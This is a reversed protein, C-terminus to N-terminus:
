CQPGDGPPFPSNPSTPPAPYGPQEPPAGPDPPAPPPPGPPDSFPPDPNNPDNPNGPNSPDAPDNDSPPSDPSDPDDPEDCQSGVCPVPIICVIDEEPLSTMAVSGGNGGGSSQGGGGTSSNYITQQVPTSASTTGSTTCNNYSVNFSSNRTVSTANDTNPCITSQWMSTVAGGGSCSGGGYSTLDDYMFAIMSEPSSSQASATVVRKTIRYPITIKQMASLVKPMNALIELDYDGITSPYTIGKYDAAILGYNTITFEGNLVEGPQMPPLSIGPPETVIVPTPVNTEYTQSIKIQYRDELIVPTVSWEITVLNVEMAVPMNTWIGPVVVLSGNLPKHGSASINYSYRGEPIDTISATGLLPTEDAVTTLTYYLEPLAQHQLTIRAGGVKKLLEDMVSFQVSGTASSTVTVQINYTYPIHNDSYIVIRDDYVGQSMGEGPKLLIGIEKSQGVPIDGVNRDVTIGIWPLSPGDIRASRLAELGSNRLMFSVIKQNGRVIGTDIYSPSTSIVPNQSILTITSDVKSSLGEATEIHLSAFGTDPAGQEPILRFTVTRSENGALKDSGGNIVAASIGASATPTFSLGTLEAPSLNTLTVPVDVTRGRSTTLRATEPTVQLGIITFQAQVTRDKLDPHMAWVSYSGTENAAPTFIYSFEGKEDANVIFYRDFGKNTMGIRVPVLPMSSGNSTATVTGTIRVPEGQKYIVKDIVVTASYSVDAITTEVSQRLGPATVQDPQRYHYYTNQVEVDLIVKYPANGPVTFTIPDTLFSEGPNLRATAYGSSNVVAAGTRQNLNGQSLLNGDQDRLKVIIQSSAGNNESTVIEAQASGLNNLKLRVSAQTGRILPDNFVELATGSGIVAALGSRIIKVTTGPAPNLVATTVVAVQAPANLETAAVKTIELAKDAAIDFPGNETSEPLSGIKVAVSSITLPAAATAPQAATIILNELLGRRLTTGEKVGISLEPLTVERTQSETGLSSVASIGYTISGGSYYGDSFTTSQTPTTTIRSGSRYIHYGLLGSEGAEWSISPKGDDTKTLLLNRVPMVPFTVEPAIAPASENGISDLSTVAYHRKTKDPSPDFGSLEKVTAVPNLGSISDIPSDSRYLRYYAAAEGAGAQWEGKIGNGTMTLTLSHPTPPPTADTTVSIQDSQSSESNLLGLSSISYRYSGDIAITESWAAAPAPITAIKVPAPDTQSQRYLNYGSADTVPLWALKVEGGKFTKGTLSGPVSPAPPTTAYLTINAGSNVNTGRNNFRDRSELMTFRTLGEPLTAPDLTGSWHINDSSTLGTVSATGLAIVPTITSAEDLTINVAVAGGTTKLLTIPATISAQPGRVDLTPGAGQSNGRNGVIDKGSFKWITTGHPSAPDITIAATYHTDDSKQLPVVIPSGSQPELSLFPQEKLPESVTLQLNLQGPGYINDSPATGSAPTFIVTATPSLRDSAISVINSIPSENGAGDVATVAYFRSSDDAPIYEKLLYPMPSSNTKKVGSDNVSSFQSASEYLNYGSAAGTAGQQWSFQLMGAALQKAILGTPATPATTIVTIKLDASWPSEGGRNAAKASLYNDGETLPVSAFAFSQASASATTTSVVTGNIRLSINSSSQATGSIAASKVNIPGSFSTTIVPAQPPALSVVVPIITEVLNGPTDYAVIKITHNGDTTDITNWNFSLASGSITALKVGDIWLEIRDIASETDTAAASITVPATIVQSASLNVSSIVPPTTDGRPTVAVSQVTTREAGSTNLITVAYQYTEGNILGSDIFSTTTQAKILLMSSVDSQPSASKIRYINYYKVYPSSVPSWTITAKQNGPTATVGTPNALRTVAQAVAGSNERNDSDKATIRFKYLTADSLATRTYGTVTKGISIGSDYGKGDDTYLIQDSLDGSTNVSATWTLNVKNGDAASYSAVASLSTINEPPMTDQPTGQATHVSPDSNGSSSVPVVAFFYTVGKTLGTVKFTKTGKSVTTIPVLGSVTAFDANAQYIRYYALAVPEPYSPWNLTIESGSGSGDAILVGAGLAVPPVSDYLIDITKTTTNGITDTVSFTFRNSIGDVLNLVTSWTTAQDSSDILQVGNLKVLCGPEKTGSVTQSAASSPTKWVDVTFLPPTTDLTIVPAPTIAPSDNGAADRAAITLTNSGETLPYSYSWSTSSGLPVRVAGNIVIATDATKSGTILQTATKTLPTVATVTPAAPPTTDLVFTGAIQDAMTNGAQDKAGKVIISYTGDGITTNLTASGRWTKGDIWSGGIPYNATGFQVQPQVSSNMAESFSITFTASGAKLPSSPTITLTQITPASKDVTFSFSASGKNGLTDVPYITVSYVGEPLPAAPTFVLADGNVSWSGAIVAGAASKVVAGSMSASLDAAASGGSLTVSITTVSSSITSNAPTATAITPPVTDRTITAAASGSQNGAEDRAFLTFSNSGESLTVSASWATDSFPASNKSNNIYLWSNAEKSGTLTASSQNTPTVPSNIVPKSPPTLDIIFSSSASASQNGATDLGTATVNNSGERLGSITVSWTTATPYTVAGVTAGPCTVNIRTTDSSKGGTIIKATNNAPSVIPDISPASPATMDITFNVTATGINGFSDTPTITATYSGEGLAAAPTFTVSGTLGSGSSSWTGAIDFNASSKVSAQAITAPLDLPSFSDTLNLTMLSVPANFLGGAVPSSSTLAPPTNDLVINIQVAQSRYGDIDKATISLNNMGSSLTYEGSWSTGGWAAADSQPAIEVSSSGTAIVISSNAPKTGSLTIVPTNIPSTVPNVTPVGIALNRYQEMIETSNLARNYIRIDDLQGNFTANRGPNTGILLAYDTDRIGATSYIDAAKEVGDIYLRMMGQDSSIVGTFHHWKGSQITGAATSIYQQTNGIKDQPTSTLHLYGASNLWVTYERNECNTTCEPINGKWLVAQWTKDFSNVYMWGSISLNRDSHLSLSDVASVYTNSGNFQGAGTGIKANSTFSVGNPVGDNGLLSSDKWDGDMKWWGVLGTINVKIEQTRTAETNNSNDVARYQLATKGDQDIVFPTAYPQWGAGSNLNYEIRAIGSGDATDDASLSVTVPTSYWGASDKTGSLTLKSTPPTIDHTTFVIQQQQSNGVLDTAQITVTFTDSAFATAPTFVLTRPAIASWSGAVSQGASNKVTAGNISAAPDVGANADSINVVVSSIARVSSSNHAPLSSEIVPPINDYYVNRSVPASLLRSTEDLATINLLNVGVQMNPYSGSWNTAADAAVIKKNNVWISTNAPKSGSLTISGSGVYAPVANLVPAAPANPDNSIGAAYRQAIEDAALARKYIALEDLLGNFYGGWTQSHGIELPMSNTMSGVNIGSFTNDLQGNKYWKVTSTAPDYTAVWYQWVGVDVNANSTLMGYTNSAGKVRLNLKGPYNGDNYVVYGLSSDNAKKSVIGASRGDGWVSPKMWFEVSFAGAPNLTQADAVSIYSSGSFSGANTGLKKDSSFTANGATGHNGNGSSDAWDGDMHWMGVLDSDVLKEPQKGVTAPRSEYVGGFTSTPMAVSVPKSSMEGLMGTPIGVSVPKSSMEGLMGTPIAVSVPMSNMEGAMGTPIAVSVPWSVTNALPESLGSSFIILSICSYLVVRLMPNM